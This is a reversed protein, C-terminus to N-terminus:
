DLGLCNAYYTVTAPWDSFIGLVGVDRALVDLLEYMDGDRDIADAVSQYYWGGGDALPGSRELTWAILGLGADKAALAYASPVIESDENLTVLMWLPPALVRIGDAALEAMGPAWSAPRAVDFDPDDYRDDLFVAQRGFAPENEIWYRLDDLRFSQAWVDEPEIGAKKYDDIMQQAFAEQTFDGEFPMAVEPAKLEPAFKVGLERFLAISEAHTLLRGSEAYLDTRFDPTGRLYNDVTTADEDAGDMKGQLRRFEDLTLDSACCKAHAKVGRQSDAPTFPEACKAALDPIQLINTTRHLDCQAHRCVLTRDKTFTVDCELIGAGQRAAAIYSERTHEPFQLPAGRHGISFDSRRFPGGRCQELRAKLAGDDMDDVLHFPRPGLQVAEDASLACPCGAVGIILGLMAAGQNRRYSM